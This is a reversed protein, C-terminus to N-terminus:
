TYPNASVHDAASCRFKRLWFEAYLLLWAARTPYVIAHSVPRNNGSRRRVASVKWTEVRTHHSIWLLCSFRAMVM